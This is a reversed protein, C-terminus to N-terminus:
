KGSGPAGSDKVEAYIQDIKQELAKMSVSSKYAMIILKVSILFVGAEILLDHKFGKVFLAIAFLCFTITIVSISGLDFYKFM